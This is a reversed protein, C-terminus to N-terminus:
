LSLIKSIANPHMQPRMLNQKANDAPNDKANQPLADALASPSGAHGAAVISDFGHAYL